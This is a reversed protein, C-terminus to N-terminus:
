VIERRNEIKAAYKTNLKAAAREAFKTISQMHDELKEAQNLEQTLVSIKESDKELQIDLRKKREIYQQKTCLDDQYLDTLNSLKRETKALKKQAVQLNTM